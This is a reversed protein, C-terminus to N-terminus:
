TVLMQGWTNVKTGDTYIIEISDIRLNYASYNWMINEWKGGFVEGPKYPGVDELVFSSKDTIDCKIKDGVRNEIHVTYYVYKITKNSNNCFYGQWWFGGVSNLGRDWRQGIKILESGEYKNISGKSFDVKYLSGNKVFDIVSTYEYEYIKTAKSFNTYNKKKTNTIKKGNYTHSVGDTTFYCFKEVKGYDDTEVYMPVAKDIKNSNYLPKKTRVDYIVCNDYAHLKRFDHFVNLDGDSRAWVLYFDNHFKLLAFCNNDWDLGFDEAYQKKGNIFLYNGWDSLYTQGGYMEDCIKYEIEKGKSSTYVYKIYKGSKSKLKKWTGSKKETAAQASISIGVNDSDSLPLGCVAGLSLVVALFVSMIKSRIKM